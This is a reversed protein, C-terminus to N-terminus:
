QGSFVLLTVAIAWGNVQVVPRDVESAMDNVQSSSFFQLSRGDM